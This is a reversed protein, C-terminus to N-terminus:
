LQLPKMLCVTFFDSSRVGSSVPIDTLPGEPLVITELYTGELVDYPYANYLMAHASRITAFMAAFITKINLFFTLHPGDTNFVRRPVPSSSPHYRRALKCLVGDSMVPFRNHITNPRGDYVGEM